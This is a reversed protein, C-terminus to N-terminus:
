RRRERVVSYGVWLIRMPPSKWVGHSSGGDRKECM